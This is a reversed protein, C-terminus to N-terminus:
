SVYMSALDLVIPLFDLTGLGKQEFKHINFGGQAKEMVPLM